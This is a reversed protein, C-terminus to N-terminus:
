ITKGTELERKVDMLQENLCNPAEISVCARAAIKRIKWDASSSARRLLPRLAMTSGRSNRSAEMPSARLWNLASLHLFLEPNSETEEQLLLPLRELMEDRIGPYLAFFKRASLLNQAADDDRVMKSGVVRCQLAAFLLMSANRLGYNKSAFGTVALHYIRPVHASLLGGTGTSCSVENVAPDLEM